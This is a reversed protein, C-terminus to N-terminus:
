SRDQVHVRLWNVLEDRSLDGRALRLMLQEQEDVSATLESGNLLLFTEMAAHAVRKNGDVFPHNQVLSFCLAAAKELLTLHLDRGGFTAKPQALASELAGLDRIGLGGGTAEIVRLHLEVVQGIGLYRM